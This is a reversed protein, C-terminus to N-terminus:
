TLLTALFTALTTLSYSNKNIMWGSVQHPMRWLTLHEVPPDAYFSIEGDGMLASSWHTFYDHSVRYSSFNSFLPVGWGDLAIMKKVKGGGLQHFQAAAIAAVVGASFALFTLDKQLFNKEQLFQWLHFGSFAPYRETPFILYDKLEISHRQLNTIFEQTLAPDHIGPCIIITM